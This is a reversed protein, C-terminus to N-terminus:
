KRELEEFAPETAASTDDGVRIEFQRMDFCRVIHPDLAIGALTPVIKAM